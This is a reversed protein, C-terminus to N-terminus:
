PATTGTIWISSTTMTTTRTRSSESIADNICLTMLDTADSLVMQCSLERFYAISKITVAALIAVVVTLVVALKTRSSMHPLHVDLYVPRRRIRRPM